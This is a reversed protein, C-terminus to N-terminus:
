CIPRGHEPPSQCSWKRSKERDRFFARAIEPCQDNGEATFSFFQSSASARIGSGPSGPGPAGLALLESPEHSTAAHEKLFFLSDLPASGPFMRYRPTFKEAQIRPHILFFFSVFPPCPGAMFERVWRRLLEKRRHSRPSYAEM